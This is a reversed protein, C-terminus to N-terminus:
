AHCLQCAGDVIGSNSPYVVVGFGKVKGSVRDRRVRTAFRNLYGDGKGKVSQGLAGVAFDALQLGECLVEDSFLLTRDMNNLRLGFVSGSTGEDHLRKYHRTMPSSLGTGPLDSIVRAHGGVERMQLETRQCLYELGQLLYRERREARFAVNQEDICAFMLVGDMVGLMDCMAERFPRQDSLERLSGFHPDGGDPSWKIPAHADGLHQTKLARIAQRLRHYEADQVLLGGLISIGLEQIRSDDLYLVHSM